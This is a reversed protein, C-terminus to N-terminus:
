QPSTHWGSIRPPAHFHSSKVAEEDSHAHLVANSIGLLGSWDSHTKLYILLARQLPHPLAGM